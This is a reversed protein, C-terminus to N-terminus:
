YIFRNFWLALNQFFNSKNKITISKSESHMIGSEDYYRIEITYDNTNPKMLKGNGNFAFSNDQILKDIMITDTSTESKLAVSINVPIAHSKKTLKFSINFDENYAVIEPYKLEIIDLDVQDKVNYTVYSIKSFLKNNAKITNTHLGISTAKLEISAENIGYNIDVHQCYEKLCISTNKYTVKNRNEVVCNVKISDNVYFEKMVDCKMDIMNNVNVNGFVEKDSNIISEAYDKSIINYEERSDFIEEASNNFKDYVVVPFKYTYKRELSDTRIIWYIRETSRPKLLVSKRHIAKGLVKEKSEEIIRLGNTESLFLDAVFYYNNSNTVDAQVINYSNFGITYDYLSTRIAYPMSIKEGHQLVNVETNIKGPMLDINKGSYQYKVSPIKGDISDSMKIHAADIFAYEGYTIDYPIWGYGPFYVEAWAHAVWPDDFVSLDTYAVGSVFRAPIGAARNLSIFLNTLEDCVGIKNELVWSSKQDSESTITSLDYEINKRVYEAFKYEVVFLDNEDQSLSEAISKIEPTVDIIETPQIYQNLSLDLDNLPFSIKKDIKNEIFNTEVISNFTFEYHRELPKFWFFVIGDPDPNEINILDPKQRIDERPYSVLTANIIEIYGSNKEFVVDFDNNISVNSLLFGYESYAPVLYPSILIYFLILLILSNQNM